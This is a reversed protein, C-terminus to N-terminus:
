GELGELFGEQLRAGFIQPNGSRTSTFILWASDATLYPHTHSWQQGDHVTRSAIM